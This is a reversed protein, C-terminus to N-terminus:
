RPRRRPRGPRPRPRSGSAAADPSTAPSGSATAASSGTATLRATATSGSGTATCGSGTAPSGSATATCGSATAPSGSATAGVLRDRHLGLRDGGVLRDRRLGLGGRSPRPAAARRPRGRRTRVGARQRADREDAQGSASPDPLDVASSSSSRSPAAVRDVSATTCSSYAEGVQSVRDDGAPAVVDRGAADDVAGGDGGRANAAGCSRAQSSAAIQGRTAARTAAQRSSTAARSGAGRAATTSVGSSNSAPM